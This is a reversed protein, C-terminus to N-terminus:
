ISMIPIRLLYHVIVLFYNIILLHHFIMNIKMIQEVKKRQLYFYMIHKVILQLRGNTQKQFDDPKKLNCKKYLLEENFTKCTIKKLSGNTEVIIINLSM